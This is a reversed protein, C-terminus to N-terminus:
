NLRELADALFVDRRERLLEKTLDSRGNMDAIAGAFWDIDPPTCLAPPQGVAVNGAANEGRGLEGARCGPRIADAHV